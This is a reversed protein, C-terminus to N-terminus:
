NKTYDPNGDRPPMKMTTEAFMQQSYEWGTILGYEKRIPIKDGDRLNYFREQTVSVWYGRQKRPQIVVILYHSPPNKIRNYNGPPNFTKHVTTGIEIEGKQSFSYDVLFFLGICIVLALLYKLVKM